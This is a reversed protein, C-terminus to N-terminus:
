RKDYIPHVEPSHQVNKPYCGQNSVEKKFLLVVKPERNGGLVGRSHVPWWWSEAVGVWAEQRGSLPLTLGCLRCCPEALRGFLSNVMLGGVRNLIWESYTEM